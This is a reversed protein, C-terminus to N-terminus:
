VKTSLFRQTLRKEGKEKTSIIDLVAESLVPTM